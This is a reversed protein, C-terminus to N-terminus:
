VAWARCVEDVAAVIQPDDASRAARLRDLAAPLQQVCRALVWRYVEEFVSTQEWLADLDDDDTTAFAALWSSAEPSLTPVTTAVEANIHDAAELLISLCRLLVKDELPVLTMIAVMHELADPSAAWLTSQHVIASGLHVTAALRTDTDGDLLGLLRGPTDAAIGYAHPWRPWEAASDTLSARVADVTDLM